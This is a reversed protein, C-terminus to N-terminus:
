VILQHLQWALLKALTSQEATMGIYSYLPSVINYYMYDLLVRFVIIYISQLVKNPKLLLNKINTLM